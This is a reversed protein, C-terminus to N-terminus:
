REAAREMEALDRARLALEEDLVGIKRALVDARARHRSAFDAAVQATEEDHIRRAMAERRACTELEALEAAHERRVRALESRLQRLTARAGYVERELHTAPEAGGAYLERRFNEVAQRWARRWEELM